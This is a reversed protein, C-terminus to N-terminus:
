EQAAAELRESFQSLAAYYIKGGLKYTIVVAKGPALKKSASLTKAPLDKSLTVQYVNNTTKPVLTHKTPNTAGTEINITVPSNVMTTRTSYQHGEVWIELPYIRQGKPGAVYIYYNKRETATVGKDVGSENPAETPSAGGSVPQVFAYVKVDSRNQALGPLTFCLASLMFILKMDTLHM